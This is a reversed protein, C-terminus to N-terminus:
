DLVKMSSVSFFMVIASLSTTLSDISSEAISFFVLMIMYCVFLTGWEFSYKISRGAKRCCSLLFASVFMLGIFGINLIVDLYGNHAHADTLLRMETTWFGGYGHGIIPRNLALPVLREWILSRDTLTSDRKFISSIDLLSLKGLFPTITGYIIIIIIIARLANASFESGRKKMWYLGCLTLMAVGFSVTSTASYAFTRNPGMFLFVALILLLIEIYTQYKVVPIDRGRWKRILTWVLYLSAIMCLRALGNKQTAVGIWMRAGSWRGFEIGYAPYYKILLVSFPILIYTVRRLVGLLAQRPVRESLVAFAM